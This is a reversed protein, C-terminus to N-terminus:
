PGSGSFGLDRFIVIDNYIGKKSLYARCVNVQAEISLDKRNQHKVSVRAYVAARKEKNM